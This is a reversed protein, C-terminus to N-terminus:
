RRRNVENLILWVVATVALSGVISIRMRFVFRLVVLVGIFM